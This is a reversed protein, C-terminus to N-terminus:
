RQVGARQCLPIGSVVEQTEGGPGLTVVRGNDTESIYVTGDSAVVAANPSTLKDSVTKREVGDDTFSLSIVAGDAYLLVYLVNDPGCAMGAPRTVDEAVLVAQTDGLIEYVTGRENEAVFMRGDPCVAIGETKDLKDEFLLEWNQDAARAPLACLLAAFVMIFGTIALKKM